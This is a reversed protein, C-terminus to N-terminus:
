DCKNSQAAQQLREDQSAHMDIKRSTAGTNEETHGRPNGRSKVNISDDRSHAMCSNDAANVLKALLLNQEARGNVCRKLRDNDECESIVM